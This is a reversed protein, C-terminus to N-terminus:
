PRCDSARVLRPGSMIPIANRSPCGIARMIGYQAPTPPQADSIAGYPRIPM